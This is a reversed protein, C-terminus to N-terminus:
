EVLSLLEYVSPGGICSDWGRSFSSSPCAKCATGTVCKFTVSPPVSLEEPVMQWSEEAYSDTESSHFGDRTFEGRSRGEDKQLNWPIRELQESKRQATPGSAVTESAFSNLSEMLDICLTLRM